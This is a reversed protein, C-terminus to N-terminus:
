VCGFLGCVKDGDVWEDNIMDGDDSVILAFAIQLSPHQQQMPDALEFVRRGIDWDPSLNENTTSKERWSTNVNVLLLKM